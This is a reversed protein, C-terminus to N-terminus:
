PHPVRPAPLQEGHQHLVLREAPGEDGLVFTLQANVERYYFTDRSEPYVTLRPQEGLQVTLQGDELSVDLEFGPELEYRGVYRELLERPVNVDLLGQAALIRVAVNRQVEREPEDPWDYVTAVSHLLPSFLLHGNDSNSMMVLGQGTEPLMRIHARYGANGGSHSFSRSAGEGDLVWSLGHGDLVETLMMEATAQSLIRDSDGHSANTVEILVRALDSPTSWIGAAATEPYRHWGGPIPAGDVDHALAISGPSPELATRELGAPLFLSKALIGDFPEGLREVMAYQIVAFGLGSYQVEVGPRGVVRAPPNTAPPAGDLVDRLTPLPEGETYGPFGGPTVGATHALLQHLTVGHDSSGAGDTLQWDGLYDNVPADLDFDGLEVHHLLALATLPKSISASQFLTDETVADDTGAELVGYGRAWAIRGDQIVAISLGPVDLAAMWETLTLDAEARGELRVTPLETEVAAIEADVSPPPAPAEEPAPSCGVLVALIALSAM